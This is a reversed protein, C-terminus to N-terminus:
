EKLAFVTWDNFEPTHNGGFLAGCLIECGIARALSERRPLRPPPDRRLWRSPNLSLPLVPPPPLRGGLVLVKWPPAVFVETVNHLRDYLM